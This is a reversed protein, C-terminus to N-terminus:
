TARTRRGPGDRHVLGGDGPAYKGDVLRWGTGTKGAVRYGPVAAASGTADPRRHHGGGAHHAAGRREAPQAGVPHRAPAAPHRKGDPGIIEKVLHPQVYTGDNAIAAYAAAMQLPTVDVSHGIPVSGYVLREM